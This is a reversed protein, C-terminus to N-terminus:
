PWNASADARWGAATWARARRPGRRTAVRVPVLAYFRGEYASLRDFDAVALRPLLLGRVEGAGRLLTPYPTGRLRVRRYGPLSAAVARRLAVRRAHRAFIRPDLLTGYLFVGGAM